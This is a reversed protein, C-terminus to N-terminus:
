FEDEYTGTTESGGYLAANDLHRQYLAPYDENATRVTVRESDSKLPLIKFQQSLWCYELAAYGLVMLSVGVGLGRWPLYNATDAILILGGLTAIIAFRKQLHVLGQQCLRCVPLRLRPSKSRRYVLLLLGLLWGIPGLFFLVICGLSAYSPSAAPLKRTVLQGDEDNGCAVCAQPLGHARISSLHFDVRAM